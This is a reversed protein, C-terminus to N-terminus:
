TSSETKNFSSFFSLKSGDFARALSRVSAAFFSPSLSGSSASSPLGRSPLEESSSLSPLFFHTIMHTLKHIHRADIRQPGQHCLSRSSLMWRISRVVKQNIFWHHLVHLVIRDTNGKVVCFGDTFRYAITKM